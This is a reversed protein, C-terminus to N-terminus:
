NEKVPTIKKAKADTAKAGEKFKSEASVPYYQLV